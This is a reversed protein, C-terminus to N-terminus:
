ATRWVRIQRKSITRYAFRKSTAKQQRCILVRISSLKDVDVKFSQGVEMEALPYKTAAHRRRPPLPIGNEVPVITPQQM